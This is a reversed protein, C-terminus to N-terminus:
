ALLGVAQGDDILSNVLKGINEAHARLTEYATRLTNLDAVKAYVSGVQINDQGTYAASQDNLTYASFTRTATAYTQTYAAPQAVPTTINYFGLLAVTSNAGWTIAPRETTTYFATLQGGAARTAHTADTWSWTLRGADQNATTSSKLRASVGLGFGAAPTGSSSRRMRFTDVIANTTASEAFFTLSDAEYFIDGDNPTTPAVGVVFRQSARATTGAALHLLATLTTVGVGLFGQADIRVREAPTASGAPSTLFTIRGPMISSGVTGDVEINVSALSRYAAGDYARSLFRFTRDGNAVATQAGFSGRSKRMNIEGSTASDSLQEILMASAEGQHFIHVPALPATTNIGVNGSQLIVVDRQMLQLSVNDIAGNFTSTPTFILDANNAAAAVPFHYTGDVSVTPAVATGIKAILTGASMGTVTFTILYTQGSIISSATLNANALTANTTSGTTHLFTGGSVAWNTGSWNGAGSFDRNATVTILEVFGTNHVRFASNTPSTNAYFVQLPSTPTVGIGVRANTTDLTVFPTGAANQLQLATTSDASPKWSPGVIGNTFTQAQSSAGTRTGTALLYGAHPDAAAVHAALATAAVGAAEFYATDHGDLTDADLTSGPGDVALLKSLVDAATYNAAPLFYTSDHGDLTDADSSGPTAMVFRGTAQNWVVAKGDDAVGLAGPGDTAQQISFGGFHGIAQPQTARIAAMVFAKDPQSWMMFKGDDSPVMVGPGDPADQILPPAYAITM